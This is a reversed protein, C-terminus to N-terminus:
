RMLNGVMFLFFVYDLLLDFLLQSFDFYTGLNEQLKLKTMQNEIKVILDWIKGL